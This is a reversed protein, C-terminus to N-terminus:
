PSAGDKLFYIAQGIPGFLFTDILAENHCAPNREENCWYGLLAVLKEKLPARRLAADQELYEDLFAMCEVYYNLTDTEERPVDQIVSEDYATSM